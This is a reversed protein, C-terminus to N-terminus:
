RKCRWIAAFNAGDDPFRRALEVSRQQWYQSIEGEYEPGMFSYSRYWVNQWVPQLRQRWEYIDFGRGTAAEQLSHAVHVDVLRAIALRGPRRGFLGSRWAAQATQWPPDTVIGLQMGLRRLYRRPNLANQRRQVRKFRALTEVCALNAYYRRSPEHGALWLAGPELLPLLGAMLALPAPLHHLLSNSIVLNYSYRRLEAADAVFEVRGCLPAIKAKCQALMEPAPDYCTLRELREAPLWRLLQEAEFGTGCGFDLVRWRDPARQQDLTYTIMERWIQPLQTHVEPHRRDYLPAEYHHYIRNVAVILQPLPVQPCYPALLSELANQTVM